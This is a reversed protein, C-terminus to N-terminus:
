CCCKLFLTLTTLNCCGCCCLYNTLNSCIYFLKCFYSTFCEPTTAQLSVDELARAKGYFKTVHSVRIM